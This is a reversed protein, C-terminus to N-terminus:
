LVTNLIFAIDSNFTSNCVDNIDNRSTPSIKAKNLTYLNRPLQEQMASGGAYISGGRKALYKIM